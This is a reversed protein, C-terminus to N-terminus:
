LLSPDLPPPFCFFFPLCYLSCSSAFSVTSPPSGRSHLVLQTETVRFFFSSPCCQWSLSSVSRSIGISFFSLYFSFSFSFSVRATQLSLLLVFLHNILFHNGEFFSPPSSLRRLPCFKGRSPVPPLASNRPERSSPFLVASPFKVLCTFSSFLFTHWVLDSSTNFTQRRFSPLRERRAISFFRLFSSLYPLPRNLPSPHLFFSYRLLIRIDPIVLFSSVECLSFLPTVQLVERIPTRQRGRGARSLVCRPRVRQIRASDQVVSNLPCCQTFATHTHSNFYQFVLLGFVSQRGCREREVKPLICLLLRTGFSRLGPDCLLRSLRPSLLFTSLFARSSRHFPSALSITSVRTPLFVLVSFCLM